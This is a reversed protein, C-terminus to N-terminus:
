AARTNLVIVAVFYGLALVMAVSGFFFISARRYAPLECVIGNPKPRRLYLAFASLGGAALLALMYIYEAREPLLLLAVAATNNWLHVLIPLALRGGRVYVWGLALGSVFAMPAQEMNQHLLAFLAATSVVAFGDGFRRLPPLIVGRLLLEETVAPLLGTTLMALLLGLSGQPVIEEPGGLFEIGARGALAEVFIAAFNGAMCLAAGAVVLLFSDQLSASSHTEAIAQNVHTEAQNVPSACGHAEVRFLRKGVLAGGLVTLSGLLVMLAYWLADSMDPLRPRLLALPAAALQLVCVALLACGAKRSITRLARKEM